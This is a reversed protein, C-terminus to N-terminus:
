FNFLGLFSLLRLGGRLCGPGLATSHCRQAPPLSSSHVDIHHLFPSDQVGQALSPHWDVAAWGCREHLNLVRLTAPILLGNFGGYQQWWNISQVM